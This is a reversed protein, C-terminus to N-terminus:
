TLHLENKDSTLISTMPTPPSIDKRNSENGQQFKGSNRAVLIYSLLGIRGLPFSEEEQGLYQNNGPVAGGGSQLVRNQVERWFRATCNYTSNRSM